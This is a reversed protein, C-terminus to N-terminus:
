HVSRVWRLYAVLDEEVTEPSTPAVEGYQTQTRFSLYAESPIPLFPARKWWGPRRAAWALRAAVLWLTPHNWLARVMGFVSTQTGTRTHDNSAM